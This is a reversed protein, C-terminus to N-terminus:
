LIYIKNGFTDTKTSSNDTKNNLMQQEFLRIKNSSFAMKTSIVNTSKLGTQQELYSCTNQGDIFKNGIIKVLVFLQLIVDLCQGLEHSDKWWSFLFLQIRRKEVVGGEGELL